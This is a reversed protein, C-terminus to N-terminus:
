PKSRSASRAARRRLVARGDVLDRLREGLQGLVGVLREEAARRARLQDGSRARQLVEVDDVEKPRDRVPGRRCRPPRARVRPVSGAATLPGMTVDGLPFAGLLSRAARRGGATSCSSGATPSSVPDTAGGRSASASGCRARAVARNPAAAEPVSPSRCCRWSRARGPAFEDAARTRLRRRYADDGGGANLACRQGARRHPHPRHDRGALDLGQRRRDQRHPRARRDDDAIRDADDDDVLVEIRVKPVFEIRTSPAATCRPTAGSAASARAGRHDHHGPVGLENLAEKVEDLKFPKIIATVLKMVADEGHTPADVPAHTSRARRSPTVADTAARHVFDPYCLVGFEPVDLGEIEVEPSSGSRCSGSPSRHLHLWTVGWAWVFGVVVDISRRSRAPRRRRLLPGQRQRTVGNWGTATPATPSSGSRSCAGRAACATCRSRAARTTSRPSTTSSSSATARRPLRRDIGIVVAAWPAVFACPATIAVLGALMGNCSMSIDPKGYKCNTSSWRWSSASARRRAAHQGRRPRHAPRHRRVDLGPQLGDLRVRARAHRDRRLRPQPRPDRQRTGDKNFKGIRPGLIM